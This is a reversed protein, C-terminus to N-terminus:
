ASRDLEALQRVLWDDMNHTALRVVAADPVLQYAHPM